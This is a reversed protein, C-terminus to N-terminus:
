TVRAVWRALVDTGAPEDLSSMFRELDEQVALCDPYRRGRDKALARELIHQLAEPLDPRREVAPVYTASRIGEIAGVLDQGVFPRLGTLLEYLVMGLGYVDGSMDPPHGQFQEPPKYALADVPTLRTRLDHVALKAIGFDCVKVVGERSVRVTGPRVDRHVWELPMGTAWDKLTHVYALGRAAQSVLGVCVGLPLPAGRGMSARILQRLSPGDGPAMLRFANGDATGFDLVEQVNPHDLDLADAAEALFMEVLERNRALEPIVRLLEWSGSTDEALFTEVQEDEALKQILRYKGIQM